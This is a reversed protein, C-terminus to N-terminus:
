SVQYNDLLGQVDEVRSGIPRSLEKLQSHVAAVFKASDKARELARQHCRVADKLADLRTAIVGAVVAHRVQMGSMQESLLARDAESLTALLGDSGQGQGQGQVFLREVDAGVVECEGSLKTYQLVRTLYRIRSIRPPRHSFTDRSATKSVSGALRFHFTM